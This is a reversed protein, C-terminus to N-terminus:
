PRVEDLWLSRGRAIPSERPAADRSLLLAVRYLNVTTCVHEPALWLLEGLAPATAGARVRLPLHEESAAGPELEPRRAVECSPRCDPAVGKSGADLTVRGRAADRSIVRSVVFAAQRLGLDAAAPESRRDSLVITGPSVQHDLEGRAPDSLPAFALAHHYSHTGSTVLEFREGPALRDRVTPLVADALALLERYAAHAAAREDWTFHGDYGHLGTIRARGLSDVLARSWAERWRGPDSGTRGMGLDVDLQVDIARGRTAAEDVLARLHEPSDAILQVRAHEHRATIALAAALAARHLPYALLVDARTETAAAATLALELEDLTACKCRHVGLAHLQGLLAAQKITKIHPRWRRADGCRTIMAAVNHRVADLDIVLAPTTLRPLAPALARDLTELQEAEVRARLEFSSPSATSAPASEPM